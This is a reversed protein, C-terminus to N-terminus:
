LNNGSRHEKIRFHEAFDPNRDKMYWQMIKAELFRNQEELNNTQEKIIKEIKRGTDFAFASIIEDKDM